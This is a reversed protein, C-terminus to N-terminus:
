RRSRRRKSHNRAYDFRVDSVSPSNKVEVTKLRSALFAKYDEPVASGVALCDKANRQIKVFCHADFHREATDPSRLACPPAALRPLTSQFTSSCVGSMFPPSSPLPSSQM